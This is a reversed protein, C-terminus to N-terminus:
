AKDDPNETLPLIITAYRLATGHPLPDFRFGDRWEDKRGPWAELMALCAARAEARHDDKWARDLQEWPPFRGHSIRRCREEYAARAGAELAAPPITIDTM